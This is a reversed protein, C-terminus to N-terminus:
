LWDHLVGATTPLGTADSTRHRIMYRTLGRSPIYVSIRGMPLQWSIDTRREYKKYVPPLEFNFRSVEGIKTIRHLTVFGSRHQFSTIYGLRMSALHLAFCLKLIGKRSVPLSIFGPNVKKNMMQCLGSILHWFYDAQVSSNLVLPHWRDGWEALSQIGMSNRRRLADADNHDITTDLYLRNIGILLDNAEMFANDPPELTAPLWVLLGRRMAEDAESWPNERMLVSPMGIAQIGHITDGKRCYDVYSLKEVTYDVIEGLLTLDGPVLESLMKISRDRMLIGADSYFVYRMAHRPVRVRKQKSADPKLKKNPKKTM